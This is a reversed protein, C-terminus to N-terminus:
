TELTDKQIQSEAESNLHTISMFPSLLQIEQTQGVWHWPMVVRSLYLSFTM